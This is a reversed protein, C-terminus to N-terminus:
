TFPFTNAYIVSDWATPLSRQSYGSGASLPSSIDGGAAVRHAESGENTRREPSASLREKQLFVVSGM